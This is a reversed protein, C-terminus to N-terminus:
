ADGRRHARGSGLEEPEEHHRAHEVAPAAEPGLPEVRERRQDSPNFAPARRIPDDRALRVTVRDGARARETGIRLDRAVFGAIAGLRRAERASRSTSRTPPFRGRPARGAKGARQRANPTDPAMEPADARGEPGRVNM